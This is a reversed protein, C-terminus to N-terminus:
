FVVSALTEVCWSIFGWVLPISSDAVNAVGFPGLAIIGLLIERSDGVLLDM